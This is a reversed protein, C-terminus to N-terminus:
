EKIEKIIWGRARLRRIATDMGTKSAQSDYFYLKGGPANQRVFRDQRLLVKMGPDKVVGWAVLPRLLAVRTDWDPYFTVQFQRYFELVHEENGTVVAFQWSSQRLGRQVSITPPQVSPLVMWLTLVMALMLLLGYGLRTRM